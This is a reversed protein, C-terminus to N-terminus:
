LGVSEQQQDLLIREVVSLRLNHQNREIVEASYRKAELLAFIADPHGSKKYFSYVLYYGEAINQRDHDTLNGAQGELAPMSIVHGQPLRDPNSIMDSNAYFIHPWYLPENYFRKSLRWLSNGAVLRYPRQKFFQETVPQAQEFSASETVIMEAPPEVDQLSAVEDTSQPMETTINKELSISTSSENVALMESEVQPLETQPAAMQTLAPEVKQESVQSELVFEKQQAAEISVPVSEVAVTKGPEPIAASSVSTEPTQILSGILVLAIISAAIGAYVLKNQGSNKSNEFVQQVVKNHEAQHDVHQDLVTASQNETKSHVSEPITQTSVTETEPKQVQVAEVAVPVAVPAARVPEIMERLAKCPTFMVRNREPITIVEGTQPNRGKRAAMRKLKFSGFHNIRVVGDRLLGENIILLVERAAKKVLEPSLKQERIIEDLLAGDYVNAHPVTSM